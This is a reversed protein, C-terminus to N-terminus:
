SKIPRSAPEADAPPRMQEGGAEMALVIDVCEFFVPMPIDQVGDMWAFVTHVGVDLRRALASPGGVYSCAKHITRIYLRSSNM